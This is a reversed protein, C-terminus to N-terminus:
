EGIAWDGGTEESQRFRHAKLGARRARTSQGTDYTLLTVPREALGQIALGRDVIEDDEIPLRFHGPPDFLIELEVVGRPKSKGDEPVLNESKLVGVEVKEGVVRDIVALAYGARWRVDNIKSEKLRDLEDIVVMPILVVLPEERMGLTPALDWEEMKSPHHLYFSSDPLAIAGVSGWRKAMRDIVEKEERLAFVRNTIETDVLDTVVKLEPTPAMTQLTWYMKTLVLRDIAEQAILPRLRRSALNAWEMYKLYRALPKHGGGQVSGINAEEEWLVHRLDDRRAGPVLRIPADNMTLIQLVPTVRSCARAGFTLGQQM